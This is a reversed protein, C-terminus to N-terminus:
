AQFKAHCSGSQATRGVPAQVKKLFLLNHLVAYQRYYRYIGINKELIIEWQVSWFKLVMFKRKQSPCWDTSCQDKFESNRLGVFISNNGVFSSHCKSTSSPNWQLHCYLSPAIYSIDERRGNATSQVYEGITYCIILPMHNKDSCVQSNIINNAIIAQIKRIVMNQEVEFILWGPYKFVDWGDAHQHQLEKFLHNYSKSHLYHLCKQAKLKYLKYIQYTLFVQLFGGIM